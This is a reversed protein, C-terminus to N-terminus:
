DFAMEYFAQAEATRYTAVWQEHIDSGAMADVAEGSEHM